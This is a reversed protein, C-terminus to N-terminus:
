GVASVITMGRIVVAESCSGRCSSRDHGKNTTYLWGMMFCQEVHKGVSIYL